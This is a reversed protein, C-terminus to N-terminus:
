NRVLLSRYEGLYSPFFVNRQFHPRDYFLNESAQHDSEENSTKMGLVDFITLKSFKTHIDCYTLECTILARVHLLYRNKLAIKM